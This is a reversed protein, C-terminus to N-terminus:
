RQFMSWLQEALKIDSKQSAKTGGTLLVITFKKVKGFYVRYGPGFHYRLEFIGKGISRFDGWNGKATRDLRALIRAQAASDLSSLWQTFPERRNNDEYLRIEIPKSEM